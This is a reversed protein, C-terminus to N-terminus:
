DPQYGSGIDDPQGLLRARLRNLLAVLNPGVEKLCKNRPV